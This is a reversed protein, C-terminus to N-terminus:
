VSRIYNSSSKNKKGYESYCSFIIDKNKYHEDEMLRSIKNWDRFGALSINETVMGTLAYIILGSGVVNADLSAKMFYKILAKTLILTWRENLKESLPFLINKESFFPVRDDVEIKIPKGMYYLKVWYKGSQTIQPVGNEQPYIKKWVAEDSYVDNLNRQKIIQLQSGIWIGSPSMNEKVLINAMKVDSIQM